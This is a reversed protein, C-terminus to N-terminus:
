KKAGFAGMASPHTFVGGVEAHGLGYFKGAIHGLVDNRREFAGNAVDLGSWKMDPFSDNTDSYIVKTFKVDLTNTALAFNITADGRLPRITPSNTTHRSNGLMVGTWVGNDTAPNTGTDNGFSLNYAAQLPIGEVTATGILTNFATDGLWGGYNIFTWNDGNATQNISSKFLEVGRRAPIGSHDAGPDALAILDPVKRFLPEIVPDDNSNDQDCTQRVCRYRTLSPPDDGEVSLLDGVILTDSDQVIGGVQGLIVVGQLIDGISGKGGSGGESCAALFVVLALAFRWM